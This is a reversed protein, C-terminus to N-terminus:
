EGSEEDKLQEIRVRADTLLSDRAVDSVSEHTTFRMNIKEPLQLRSQYAPYDFTQLTSSGGQGSAIIFQGCQLVALGSKAVEQLSHLVGSREMLSESESVICITSGEAM